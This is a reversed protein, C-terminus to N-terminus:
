GRRWDVEQQPTEPMILPFTQEMKGDAQRYPAKPIAQKLNPEEKGVFYSEDEAFRDIGVRWYCMALAYDNRHAAKDCDWVYVLNQMRDEEVIRYMFQWHLWLDWWKELNGYLPVRKDAMEDVVLQILRNRDASVLGYDDNEHWKILDLSQKDHQFYCLFVKGPNNTQFEQAGIIDGGKDMVVICDKYKDMERQLGQYSECEGMNFLGNKDGVVWRIKLGTDVGMIVRGERENIDTLLNQITELTVKSKADSYPLALTFNYFYQPDKEKFDKIIKSAPIWSCIMQPIHWGSYEYDGQIKGSWWIGDKNCWNGTRIDYLSLETQCLQCQYCQKQQDISFPWTLPAYGDCVKCHVFWEKQDSKGWKEDVGAGVLSPHSFYWRMGGPESQLRTEYQTIVERNSADVEDHINLQSTVMMAAKTTFTGRYHIINQGVNKQSVTDHDKIWQLLVPNQAIIRNIKGGAMEQVDTETPLTYIIDKHGFFAWWLSKILQLVTMGVQPAKLIVQFPSKDELIDILFMRDKFSLKKGQENKIGRYKIFFYPSVAEMQEPTIKHAENKNM